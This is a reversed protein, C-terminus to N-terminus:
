YYNILYAPYAKQNDYTMYVRSGRTIGTVTDYRVQSLEVGEASTKLPPMRLSRSSCDHSDGTLVKALFMERHRSTTYGYSTHAYSDSYSANVAFYNAQGWMGDASFRMDFGEESDYIEKPDNQRTGHFLEMENVAGNNKEEMMKRHQAYRKWLWKNQIRQISHIHVSHMTSTFKTSVAQWEPSDRQVTFLEMTKSQPEWEPPNEVEDEPINEIVRKMMEPFAKDFAVSAGSITAVCNKGKGSFTVQIGHQGAIKKLAKKTSKVARKLPMQETKKCSSLKERLVIEAEQLEEQPGRLVVTIHDSDSVVGEDDLEEEEELHTAASQLLSSTSIERKIQRKHGTVVNVQFRNATDVDYSNMNIKLRVPKVSGAQYCEEIAASDHATYATYQRKDDRYFWQASTKKGELKVNRPFHTMMNTQTMTAFDVTYQQRNVSITCTGHPNSQYHQTLLKGTVSDYPSFTGADNKWLWNLKTDMDEESQVSPSLLDSVESVDEAQLTFMGFNKIFSQSDKESYLVFHVENLVARPHNRCFDVVARQSEQACVSMPVEYVGTGLAPIAITKLNEKNAVCLCNYVARHLKEQEKSHGGRWRPGVAHIIKQFPLIGSSLCVAKGPSLEGNDKVYCTSEKQIKDGGADAIAKALGGIHELKPNAANVIVDVEEQLIDGQILFLQICLANPDPQFTTKCLVKNANKQQLFPCSCKVMVQHNLELQSCLQLYEESLFFPKLLPDLTIKMTGLRAQIKSVLVEISHLMTEINPQNGSLQIAPPNMQLSVTVKEKLDSPIAKQLLAHDHSLIIAVLKDKCAVTETRLLMKAIFNEVMVNAATFDDMKFCPAQLVVCRGQPFEVIVQHNRLDVKNSSIAVRLSQSVDASPIEFKKELIEGNEQDLVKTFEDVSGSKGFILFTTEVMKPKGQPAAMKYPGTNYLNVRPSATQGFWVLVVHEKEFELIVHKWREKWLNHINEQCEVAVSNHKLDDNLIEQIEKETFEVNTPKGELKINYKGLLGKQSREVEPVDFSQCDGKLETLKQQFKNQLYVVQFGQISVEKTITLTDELEKQCSSVHENQLGDISICTKPDRHIRLSM